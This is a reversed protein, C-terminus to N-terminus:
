VRIRQFGEGIACVVVAAAVVARVWARAEPSSCHKAILESENHAV